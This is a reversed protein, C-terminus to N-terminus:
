IVIAIQNFPSNNIDRLFINGLLAAISGDVVLSAATSHAEM